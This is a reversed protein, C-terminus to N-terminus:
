MFQYVFGVGYQGDEIVGVTATSRYRSYNWEGRLRWPSGCTFAVDIGAGAQWATLSVNLSDFKTSLVGLRVFAHLYDDLQYGPVIDGGYSYSPKLSAVGFTNNTHTWPKIPDVWGEIALTFPSNFNPGIGLTLKASLGEYRIPNAYFSDWVATPAIYLNIASSSSLCSLWISIVTIIKKFM